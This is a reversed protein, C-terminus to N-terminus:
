SRFIQGLPHLSININFSILEIFCFLTKKLFLEQLMYLVISKLATFVTVAVTVVVIFLMLLLFGAASAAAVVTIFFFFALNALAAVVVAVTVYFYLAFATFM